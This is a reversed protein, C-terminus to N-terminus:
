WIRVADRGEGWRYEGPQSLFIDDSITLYKKLSLVTGSQSCLELWLCYCSIITYLNSKKAVQSKSM